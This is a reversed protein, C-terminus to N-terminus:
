KHAQIEKKGKTIENFDKPAKLVSGRKGAHHLSSQSKRIVISPVHNFCNCLPIANSGLLKYTSLIQTNPVTWTM